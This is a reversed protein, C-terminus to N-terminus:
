HKLLETKAYHTSKRFVHYWLSTALAQGCVPATFYIWWDASLGTTPGGGDGFIAPGFYRAFNLSSGSINGGVLVLVGLAMGISYSPTKITKIIPGDWVSVLIVWMLIMSGIFEFLWGQFKTVGPNLYPVGASGKVGTIDGGEINVVELM